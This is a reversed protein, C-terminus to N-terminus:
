KFYFFQTAEPSIIHITPKIFMNTPGFHMHHDFISVHPYLHPHHIICSHQIHVSFDNMDSVSLGTLLGNNYGSGALGGMPHFIQKGPTMVDNGSIAPKWSILVIFNTSVHYTTYRGIGSFENTQIENM